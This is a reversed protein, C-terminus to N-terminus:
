RRQGAREAQEVAIAGEEDGSSSSTTEMRKLKQLQRAAAEITEDTKCFAIRIFNDAAGEEVRDLSFFPSAPICLLGYEETMWQCPAWDQRATGGPAAVNPVNVRDRPLLDLIEKGARAFIFFGGGPTVDYNPVAFGAETLAAVLLDRKRSKQRALLRLVVRPRPLTRGRPAAGAGLIRSDGDLRLIARVPPAPSDALAVAGARHVLGGAVGNRFLNEGGVFHYHNSGV